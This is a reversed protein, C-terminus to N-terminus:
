SLSNGIALPLFVHCIINISFTITLLSIKSFINSELNGLATPFILTTAKQSSGERRRQSAGSELLTCSLRTGFEWCLHDWFIASSKKFSHRPQGFYPSLHFGILRDQALTV